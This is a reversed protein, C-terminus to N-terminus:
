LCSLHQIVFQVLIVPLYESLYQKLIKLARTMNAEVSKVTIGLEESIEKNMKGEFRKMKFVMRCKEPLKKISQTILDQLEIFEISQFDFCELTEINILQEAENLARESYREVVGRHRVYDLCGSKAYTFLFSDIGTPKNIKERNLWLHIFTDQAINKADNHNQIFQDCFGVIRNFNSKFIHEFALEDGKKFRDFLLENLRTEEIAM